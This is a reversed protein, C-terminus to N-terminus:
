GKKRSLEMVAGEMEAKLQVFTAEYASPLSRVVVNVEGLVPVM